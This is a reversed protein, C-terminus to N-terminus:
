VKMITRDKSPSSVSTEGPFHTLFREWWGFTSTGNLISHGAPFNIKKLLHPNCGKGNKREKNAIEDHDRMEKSVRGLIERM